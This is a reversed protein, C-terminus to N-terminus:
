SRRDRIGYRQLLEKYLRETKDITSETSYCDEVLRRGAKAVKRAREPNAIFSLIYDAIAQGDRPPVLFGTVEHIVVDPIGGVNTAIVTKEMAFAQPIVQTLTETGTSPVVLLDIAAMVQPVDDRHGTMLVQHSLGRQAIEARLAGEVPGEGVIVFRAAPAKKLVRAAAEIFYPLGKYNRLFCVAGVLLTGPSIDFEARFERGDVQPTFRSLDVGTPISVVQSENLDNKEILERRLSEGGSTVICHSLRGYLLRNLITHDIAGCHHRGQVVLPRRVSLHAALTAVWRDRSGHTHVVEICQQEMQKSLARIAFPYLLKSMCVKHFPIGREKALKELQSDPQIVLVVHHGRKLLGEATSLVALERGGLVTSYETHLIRM